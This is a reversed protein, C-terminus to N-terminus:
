NGVAVNETIQANFWMDRDDHWGAKLTVDEQDADAKEQSALFGDVEAMEDETVPLSTINFSLLYYNTTDLSLILKQKPNLPNRYLYCYMGDLNEHEAPGYAELLKARTAGYRVGKPAVYEKDKCAIGVVIDSKRDTYVRLQSSYTYCRVPLDFFMAEGDFLPEGLKEAVVQATDGLAIGKYQFDAPIPVGPQTKAEAAQGTLVSVLLMGLFVILSFKKSM